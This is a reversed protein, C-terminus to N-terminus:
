QDGWSALASRRAPRPGIGTVTSDLEQVRATSGHAEPSTRSLSHSAKTVVETMTDPARVGTPRSSPPRFPKPGRIQGTDGDLGRELLAADRGACTSYTIQSLHQLGTRPLQGRTLGGDGRTDRHIHRRQVILLTQRDPMLAM